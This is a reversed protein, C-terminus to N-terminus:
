RAKERYEEPYMGAAELAAAITRADHERQFNTGHQFRQWGHFVSYRHGECTVWFGDNLNVVEIVPRPKPPPTTLRRHLESQFEALTGDEAFMAIVGMQRELEALREDTTKM